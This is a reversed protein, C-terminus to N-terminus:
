VPEVSSCGRETFSLRPTSTLSCGHNMLLWKVGLGAWVIKVKVIKVIRLRRLTIRALLIMTNIGQMFTILCGIFSLRTFILLENTVKFLWATRMMRHILHFFPIVFLHHIIHISIYKITVICFVETDVRVKDTSAMSFNASGTVVLPNDTLADIIMYKTHVYDVFTTLGTLSEGGDNGHENDNDSPSSSLIAGFAIRNECIDKIDYYDLYEKGNKEASAGRKDSSKESPKNDLLIYRLFSDSTSSTKNANSNNRRSIRPSRRLGDSIDTKKQGQSLVQAIPQAIGFAATYHVSSKADGMRDAYWQLMDTTKRPSFIVNMSPSKVQGQLDPQLRENVEDMPVDKNCTDDENTSEDEEENTMNSGRRKRGPPDQALHQWYKFYQNAVNEDRVIHGVNSRFPLSSHLNIYLSSCSVIFFAGYKFKSATFGEMQQTQRALGSIFHLSLSFSLQNILVDTFIICM